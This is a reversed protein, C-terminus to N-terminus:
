TVPELVWRHRRDHVGELEGTAIMTRVVMPRHDHAEAWLHLPTWTWRDLNLAQAENVDVIIDDRMLWADLDGRDIARTLDRPHVDLRRATDILPARIVKESHM